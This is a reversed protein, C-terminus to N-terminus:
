RRVVRRVAKKKASRTTELGFLKFLKRTFLQIHSFLSVFAGSIASIFATHKSQQYLSYGVYVSGVTLLSIQVPHYRIRYWTLQWFTMYKQIEEKQVQLAQLKIGPEALLLEADKLVYGLSTSVLYQLLQRKDDVKLPINKIVQQKELNSVLEAELGPRAKGLGGPRLLAKLEKPAVASFYESLSDICVDVMFSPILPFKQRTEKKWEEQRKKDTLLLATEIGSEVSSTRKGPVVMKVLSEM